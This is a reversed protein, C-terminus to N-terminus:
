GGFPVRPAEVDGRTLPDNLPQKRDGSPEAEPEEGNQPEEREEDM